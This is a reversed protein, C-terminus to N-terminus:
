GAHGSRFAGPATAMGMPTPESKLADDIHQAHLRAVEFVARLTNLLNGFLIHRTGLIRAVVQAIQNGFRIVVQHHLIQFAIVAQRLFFQLIGEALGDRLLQEDRDEHAGGDDLLTDRVDHIVDAAIEWDWPM